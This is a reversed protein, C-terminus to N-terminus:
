RANAAKRARLKVAGKGSARSNRPPRLAPSMSARKTSGTSHIETKARHTSTRQIRKSHSDPTRKQDPNSNAPKTKAGARPSAAGGQKAANGVATGVVGGVIAGVPGGVVAGLVAGAAGGVLTREMTHQDDGNSKQHPAHFNKGVKQKSKM